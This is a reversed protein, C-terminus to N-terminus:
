HPDIPHKRAPALKRPFRALMAAIRDRTEAPHVIDDFM